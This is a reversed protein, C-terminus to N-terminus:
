EKPQLGTEMFARLNEAQIKGSINEEALIERIVQEAAERNQTENLLISLNIRAKLGFDSGRPAGEAAKQFYVLATNKRNHLYLSLMGLYYMSEAKYESETQSLKYLYYYANDLQDKEFNLKGTYFNIFQENGPFNALYMAYMNLMELNGATFYYSIAERLIKEGAPLALMRNLTRTLLIVAETGKGGRFYAVITLATKRDELGPELIGALTALAAEYQKKEILIGSSEIRARDALPSAQCEKILRTFYDIAQDPMNKEMYYMGLLHLSEAYLLTDNQLFSSVTQATILDGVKISTRAIILLDQPAYDSLPGTFIKKYASEYDGLMYYSRGLWLAAQKATYEDMPPLKGETCSRVVEQYVGGAYLSILRYLFVSGALPRWKVSLYRAYFSEAAAFDKRDFREDGWKLNIEGAIETEPFANVIIELYRRNDQKREGILKAYRFLLADAGQRDLYGAVIANMALEASAIDNLALNAFALIEFGEYKKEAGPTQIYRGALELARKNNGLKWYAYSAFYNSERAYISGTGAVIIKEFGQVAKEFNGRDLAVRSLLFQVLEIDRQEAYTNLLLGLLREADELRGADIYARSLSIMAIKQDKPDELSVADELYPIADKPNRRIYIESLALAAQSRLGMKRTSNRVEELAEIGERERGETLLIKGLEYKANFYLDSKKGILIFSELYLKASYADGMALSSTAKYYQADSFPAENLLSDPIDFFMRLADGHRNKLQYIRGIILRAHAEVPRESKSALLSELVSLAEDYNQNLFFAEGIRVIRQNNLLANLSATGAEKWEIVAEDYRGQMFYIEAIRDRATIALPSSKSQDIFRRFEDIARIFEKLYYHSEAIWFRSEACLEQSTCTLVFRNFEFIAAKYKKQNFVSLALYYWAKDRYESSDGNEVVKRFLLEASGFNGSKFAESAQEFHSQVGNAAFAVQCCLLLLAIVVHSIRMM